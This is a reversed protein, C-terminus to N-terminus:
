FSKPTCGEAGWTRRGGPPSPRGPSAAEEFPSHLFLALIYILTEFHLGTGLCHAPYLAQALAARGQFSMCVCVPMYVYRPCVHLSVHACM